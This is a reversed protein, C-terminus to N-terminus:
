LAKSLWALQQTSGLLSCRHIPGQYAAEGGRITRSARLSQRAWCWPLVDFTPGLNSLPFTTNEPGGM